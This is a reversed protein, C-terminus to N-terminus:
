LPRGLAEVLSDRTVPVRIPRGQPGQTLDSALSSSLAPGLSNHPQLEMLPKQLFRLSM